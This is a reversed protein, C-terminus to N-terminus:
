QSIRKQLHLIAKVIAKWAPLYSPKHRLARVYFNLASALRQDVNYVCQGFGVYTHAWAENETNKDVIGPFEQLFNKMIEIGNLYRGKCNHSMQGSWLRYYLLPRDVYDFAYQTSFRLWLDYDIGMRLKDNFVGMRDFCEKKVVCTGFGIFNRILLPGTVRGRFLENDAVRLEKGTEDIYALRSHVVGVTESMSFLVLQLELKEPAWLDDADLFAIYEGRSERVGQNKATGQGRNEQFLYRVRTDELFPRVTEKTSDTSGDDIILLEINKYTQDLASRVALPLYVAMNYTAIVVSVLPSDEM